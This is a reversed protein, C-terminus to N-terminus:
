QSASHPRAGYSLLQEPSLLAKIQAVSESNLDDLAHARDLASMGPAARIQRAKEDRRVLIAKVDSQQAETLALRRTLGRVQEDISLRAAPIRANRQVNQRGGENTSSNQAPTTAPDDSQGAAGVSGCMGIMLWTSAIVAISCAGMTLNSRSHKM